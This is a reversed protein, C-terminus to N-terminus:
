RAQEIMAIIKNYSAELSGPFTQDALLSSILNTGYVLMRIQVKGNQSFTTIFKPMLAAREPNTTLSKSAKQPNCIQIMHLDFEEGVEIGHKGFTNALEMKDENHIFFGHESAIQGLDQVFQPLPKETEAQYLYTGEM